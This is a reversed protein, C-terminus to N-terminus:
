CCKKRSKKNKENDEDDDENENELIVNNEYNEEALLNNVSEPRSFRDKYKLHQEYLLKSAKIFVNEANFGTKASTELFFNIDHSKSFKEGMEKSVERIDELDAKNGILFINIDPNGLTKLENLWSELNEFSNTNDISYVLIALSSNHYFSSILSRYVEQGCTDWIQLKINSEDIKVFFTLFEFGITPNYSEEFLGKCAKLALCSKGVFSDGIIIIKFSLDFDGPDEKLIQAKLENSMKQIFFYNNKNM